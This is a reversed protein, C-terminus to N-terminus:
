IAQALTGNEAARIEEDERLRKSSSSTYSNRKNLFRGDSWSNQQKKPKNEM